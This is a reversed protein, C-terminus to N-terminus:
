QKDLADAEAQTLLPGGGARYFPDRNLQEQTIEEVPVCEECYVKDGAAVLNDEHDEKGCQACEAGGNEIRRQTRIAEREEATMQYWPKELKM